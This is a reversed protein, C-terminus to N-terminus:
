PRCAKAAAEAVATGELERAIARCGERDGEQAHMRAEELQIAPDLWGAMRYREVRALGAKRGSRGIRGRRRPVRGPPEVDPPSCHSSEHEAREDTDHQHRRSRCRGLFGFPRNRFYGAIQIAKLVVKVVGYEEHRAISDDDGIRDIRVRSAPQLVLQLRAEVNGHAIEDVTVIVAIVARATFHESRLRGDDGVLIRAGGDDALLARRRNGIDSEGIAHCEPQTSLRHLKDVQAPRM